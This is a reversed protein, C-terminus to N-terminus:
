HSVLGRLSEERHKPNEFCDRLRKSFAGLDQLPILSSKAFLQRVARGARSEPALFLHAILETGQFTHLADPRVGIAAGGLRQKGSEFDIRGRLALTLQVAHHSHVSTKPYAEGELAKM